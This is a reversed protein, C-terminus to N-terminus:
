RLDAAATRTFTIALLKEPNIGTELLRIIRRKIAFSKGSGPGAVSRIIRSDSSALKYAASEKELGENWIM